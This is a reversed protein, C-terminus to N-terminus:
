KLFEPQQKIEIGTCNALETMPDQVYVFQMNPFLQAMQNQGFNMNANNPPVNFSPQNNFNNFNNLNPNPPMMMVPNNLPFNQPGMFMQQNSPQDYNFNM